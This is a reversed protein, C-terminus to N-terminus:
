VFILQLGALFGIGPSFLRALTVFEVSIKFNSSWKGAQNGMYGSFCIPFSSPQNPPPPSATLVQVPVDTWVATRLSELFSSLFFFIKKKKQTKFLSAPDVCIKYMYSMAKSCLGIIQRFGPAKAQMRCEPFSRESSSAWCGLAGVWTIGEWVLWPLCTEWCRGKWCRWLSKINETRSLFLSLLPTIAWTELNSWIRSSFFDHLYLLGHHSDWEVYLVACSCSHYPDDTHWWAQM